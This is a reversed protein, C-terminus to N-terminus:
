AENTVFLGETAGTDRLREEIQRAIALMDEAPIQRVVESTGQDVISVVMRGSPEDVSFQLRTRLAGLDAMAPSEAGQERSRLDGRRAEQPDTVPRATRAEAAASTAPGGAAVVPAARPALAASQGAVPAETKMTRADELPQGRGAQGRITTEGVGQM